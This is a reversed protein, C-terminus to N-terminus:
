SAQREAVWAAVDDPTFHWGDRGRHGILAERQACRRVYRESVRLYKAVDMVSLTASSPAQTPAATGNCAQSLPAATGRGTTDELALRQLATAAQRFEVVLAALGPSPGGSNRGAQELLKALTGAYRAPVLVMPETILM